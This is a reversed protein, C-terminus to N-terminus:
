EARGVKCNECGAQVPDCNVCNGSAAGRVCGRGGHGGCQECGPLALEPMVSMGAARRRIHEKEIVGEIQAQLGRVDDVVHEPGSSSSSSSAAAACAWCLCISYEEGFVRRYVDQTDSFSTEMRSTDEKITDDHNIFGKGPGVRSFSRYAAPRLQHTHWILDIDLTPVIKMNGRTSKILSFFNTYRRTANHIIIPADPSRHWAYRTMKTAFSHQRHVAAELDFDITALHGAKTTIPFTPSTVTTTSSSPLTLPEMPQNWSTPLAAWNLGDRPLNTLKEFRAYKVPNLMFAHWVMLVDLSPLEATTSGKSLSSVWDAFRGASAKVYAHWM